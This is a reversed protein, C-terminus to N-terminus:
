MENFILEQCYIKSLKKARLQHYTNHISKWKAQRHLKSTLNNAERQM